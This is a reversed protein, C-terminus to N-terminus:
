KKIGAQADMAYKSKLSEWYYEAFVIFVVAMWFAKIDHKMQKLAM